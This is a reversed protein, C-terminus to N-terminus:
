KHRRSRKRKIQKARETFNGRWARITAVRELGQDVSQVGAIRGGEEIKAAHSQTADATIHAHTAEKWASERIRDTEVGINRAHGAHKKQNSLRTQRLPPLRAPPTLKNIRLILILLM